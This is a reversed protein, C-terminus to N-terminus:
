DVSKLKEFRVGASFVIDIGTKYYCINQIFKSSFHLFFSKTKSGSVKIEGFHDALTTQDTDCNVNRYVQSAGQGNIKTHRKEFQLSSALCNDSLANNYFNNKCFSETKWFMRRLDEM